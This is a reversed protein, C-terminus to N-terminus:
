ARTLGGVDVGAVSMGEPIHRAAARDALMASGAAAILAIAALRDPSHASRAM